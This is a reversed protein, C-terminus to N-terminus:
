DLSPPLSDLTCQKSEQLVRGNSQNCFWGQRCMGYNEGSKIHNRDYLFSASNDNIHTKFSVCVSCTHLIYSSCIIRSAAGYTQGGLFWKIRANKKEKKKNNAFSLLTSPLNFFVNFLNLLIGCWQFNLSSVQFLSKHFLVRKKKM